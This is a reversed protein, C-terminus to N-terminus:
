NGSCNTCNSCQAKTWYTRCRECIECTQLARKYVRIEDQYGNTYYGNIYMGINTDSNTTLAGSVNQQTTQSADVYATLKSGNYTFALFHWNGDTVGSGSNFVRRGMTTTTVGTRTQGSFDSISNEIQTGQMFLIHYAGVPVGSRKFWSTVTVYEPPNVPNIKVYDNTGDFLGCKGSICSTEGGLPGTGNPCSKGNNAYASSDAVTLTSCNNIWSSEDM